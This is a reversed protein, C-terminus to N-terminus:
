DKKTFFSVVWESACDLVAVLFAFLVILLYGPWLLTVSMSMEPSWEDPTFSRGLCNLAFGAIFYLIIWSFM